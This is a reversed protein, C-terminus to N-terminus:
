NDCTFYSFLIETIAENLNISGDDYQNIIEVVKQDNECNDNLLLERLEESTFKNCENKRYNSELECM